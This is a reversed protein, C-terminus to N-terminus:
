AALNHMVDNNNCDRACSSNYIVMHCKTKTAIFNLLGPTGLQPIIGCVVGRFNLLGPTGASTSNWM